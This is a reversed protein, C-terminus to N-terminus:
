PTGTCLNIDKNELYILPLDRSLSCVMAKGIRTTTTIGSMRKFLPFFPKLVVYAANYWATRSKIGKEPIILGPRFMYAKKFGQALLYNETKGKVRAWMTSGKETSDTGTGSVYTFVMAPNIQYMTDALSKTIGFTLQSYEEESLGLSTVGMCHFCGDPKGLIDSVSAVDTFDKLLVERLKPHALGIPHRNLLTVESVSDDGLCELLVGKGVMGTSGTILVKYQMNNNNQQPICIHANECIDRGTKEALNALLDSAQTMAQELTVTGTLMPCASSIGISHLDEEPLELTGCLAIVPLDAKQGLKAVGQVAKGSLTQRDLKGEGTIIIDCESALKELNTERIVMEVGPVIDADLFAMAGYGMGGAAGAGKIGALDVHWLKQLLADIHRLGEDLIHVDRPSAGKQPGYVYAAGHPGYLPNDVDAAVTFQVESLPDPDQPKFINVIESLNGGTPKIMNGHRDMFSYGLAAAMGAGGDNTASGGICLCIHRAGYGIAHSILQGTGYSSTKLPHREGAHLLALGSAEAMDIYASATAAVFGYGARVPRGLPDEVETEVRAGGNCRTLLGATGEGGDAVPMSIISSQPCARILGSVVARCAEEATLSGRFKDMCVLIKKPNM